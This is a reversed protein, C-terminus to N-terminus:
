QQGREMPSVDQIVPKVALGERVKQLGEYVVKEGSTLGDTVVWFDAQKPGVVVPRLVVRSSDDVVFVSHRGQLETICRQPVMIGGEIVGALARIRAFQGPRLLGEPNPFSSQVLIAGTTPDVERDVFRVAGEHEYLSGDVLFLELRIRKRGEVGNKGEKNITRAIQLYQSETLFFEVHVTDIKSVVNLIVPGPSRGVFDGVKAKTKGIIGTIPSFVTTYGLQIRSARLNAEAAEVSAVAAEYQAVAADLDSEAVAKQEALPRYRELDSQSKALMTKAEAVQSMKAAVDAEFPLSEMTYLLSKKRVESGELFHIGELFGEVRARIAIDKQGYVQGVFEQHVPIDEGRTLYVPIEPLGTLSSQDGACASLSLCLVVVSARIM